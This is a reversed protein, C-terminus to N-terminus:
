ARPGAPVRRQRTWDELQREFAPWWEPDDPIEDPGDDDAEVLLVWSAIALLISVALCTLALAAQQHREAIVGALTVGTAAVAVM